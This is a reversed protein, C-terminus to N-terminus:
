VPLGPRMGRLPLRWGCNDSRMVSGISRYGSLVSSVTVVESEDPLTIEVRANGAQVSAPAPHLPPLALLPDPVVQVPVFVPMPEPM